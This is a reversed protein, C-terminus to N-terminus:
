RVRIRKKQPFSVKKVAHFDGPFHRLAFFTRGKKVLSPSGPANWLEVQRSSNNWYIKGGSFTAVLVLVSTIVAATAGKIQVSTMM